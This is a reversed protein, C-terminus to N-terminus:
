RHEQDNPMLMSRTKEMTNSRMKAATGRSSGNAEPPEGRSLKRLGARCTTISATGLLYLSGTATPYKANSKRARTIRFPRNQVVSPGVVRALWPRSAARTIKQHGQGPRAASKTLREVTHLNSSALEDAGATAICRQVTRWVLADAQRRPRTMACRRIALAVPRRRVIHARATPKLKTIIVIRACGSRLREALVQLLPNTAPAFPKRRALLWFPPAHLGLQLLRSNLILSM